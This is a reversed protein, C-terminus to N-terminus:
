GGGDVRDPHLALRKMGLPRAGFGECGAAESGVPQPM